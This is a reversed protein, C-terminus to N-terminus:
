LYLCCLLGEGHYCWWEVTSMDMWLTCIRALNQGFMMYTCAVVCCCSPGNMVVGLMAM